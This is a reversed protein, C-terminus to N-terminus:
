INNGVRYRSRFSTYVYMHVYVGVSARGFVQLVERARPINQHETMFKYSAKSPSLHGPARSQLHKFLFEPRKRDQPPARSSM